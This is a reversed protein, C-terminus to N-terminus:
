EDGPMPIGTAENIKIEFCINNLATTKDLVSVRTDLKSAEVHNLDLYYFGSPDLRPKLM